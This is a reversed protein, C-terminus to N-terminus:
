LDGDEVSGVGGGIDGEGEGATGVGDLVAPGRVGVAGGHFGGEAAAGVGGQVDVQLRVQGGWRVGVAGGGGQEAVAGEGCVDGVGGAAFGVLVGGDVVSLVSAAHQSAGRLPSREGHLPVILPLRGHVLDPM